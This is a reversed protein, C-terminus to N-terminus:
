TILSISFVLPIIVMQIMNMFLSGVPSAMQKALAGMGAGQMVIGIIAGLVLAVMMQMSLNKKLM